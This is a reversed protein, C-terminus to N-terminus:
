PWVDKEVIIKKHLKCLAKLVDPMLFRNPKRDGSVWMCVAQPSVGVLKAFDTQDIGVMYDYLCTKRKM